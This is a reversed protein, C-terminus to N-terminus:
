NTLGLHRPLYPPRCMCIFYQQDCTCHRSQNCDKDTMCGVNNAHPQHASQDCEANSNCGAVITPSTCFAILSLLLACWLIKFAM